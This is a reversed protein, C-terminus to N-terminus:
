RVRGRSLFVGKSTLTVVDGISIGKIRHATDLDLPLVIIQEDRKLLVLTAGDVQRLGSFQVLGQDKKNYRRHLPIDAITQRKLEREAIYKDVSDMAPSTVGAGSVSRRLGNDSQAGQHEVHRSVNGPLLMEGRKAFQVVSLQSLERLRNKSEPPPQQGIRGVHPKPIGSVSKGNRQPKGSEIPSVTGFGENSSRNARRSDHNSSRPRENYHEKKILTQHLIQRRQELSAEDFSINLKLVVTTQLIQEKFEDSGNVTLCSGFRQTAMRLAAALAEQSSGRSIKLIDGDDRIAGTGVRYIITGSKTINDQSLGPMTQFIATNQRSEGTFINGKLPQRVGRSRLAALAEEDGETAKLKLWDAWAGRQYKLDISQRDKLYQLRAQEIESQLAKSTFTYLVKKNVSGKLLKIASRKLRGRRKAREILRDKQARAAAREASRLHGFNNQEKQYRAYLEVTNFSMHIPQQEYHLGNDIALSKLQGLQHLQNRRHAPPNKGVPSVSPKKYSGPQTSSSTDVRKEFVGLRKELQAKSCDRSVSSAKVALGSKDSIIFGNGQERLELGHEQLIQHLESWSKAGQISGMCTRKIWGLLSGIGSHHEMDDARNESGVKRPTHNVLQLGHALELKVAIEGLTKYARYPEHM